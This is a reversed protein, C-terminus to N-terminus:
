NESPKEAHDIVWVEVPGKRSELKLGLQEQIATFISVPSDPPPPASVGPPLQLAQSENPTWELNINFTGILGTQDVVHRGLIESLSKALADLSFGFTRLSRPNMAISRCLPKGSEPRGPVSNPGAVVCSGEKEEVIGPGLKGDKRALVLAYGPLERTERHMTLQFRDALLSQMMLMAEHYQVVGDPKARIDYRASDIWEPGGLVQFPEVGWAYIVMEKLTLNVISLLSPDRRVRGGPLSLSSPRISAVEFAPKDQAFAVVMCLAFTLARMITM